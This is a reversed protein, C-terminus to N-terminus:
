ANKKNIKTWFDIEVLIKKRKAAIFKVVRPGNYVQRTLSMKMWNKTMMQNLKM